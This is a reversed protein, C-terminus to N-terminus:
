TGNAQLDQQCDCFSVHQMSEDTTQKWTWHVHDDLVEVLVHRFCFSDCSVNPAMTLEEVEVMVNFPELFLQRSSKYTFQLNTTLVVACAFLPKNQM